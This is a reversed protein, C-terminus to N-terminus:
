DSSHKDIINQLMTAEEDTLGEITGESRGLAQGLLRPDIVRSTGPLIRSLGSWFGGSELGFRNKTVGPFVTEIENPSMSLLQKVVMNQYERNAREQPTEKGQATITAKAKGAEATTEAVDKQAQTAMGTTLLDTVARLTDTPSAGM